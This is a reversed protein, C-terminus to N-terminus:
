LDFPVILCTVNESELAFNLVFLLLDLANLLYGLPGLQGIMLALPFLVAPICLLHSFLVGEHEEFEKM